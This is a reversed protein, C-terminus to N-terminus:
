PAPCLVTSWPKGESPTKRRRWSLTSGELHVIERWLDGEERERAQPHGGPAFPERGTSHRRRWPKLTSSGEPALFVPGFRGGSHAPGVPRPGGRGPETAGESGHTRMLNHV